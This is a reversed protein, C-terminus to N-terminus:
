VSRQRAAREDRTGLSVRKLKPQRQRDYFEALYTQLVERGKEDKRYKARIRAM